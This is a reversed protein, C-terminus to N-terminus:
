DSFKKRLEDPLVEMEITEIETPLDLGIKFVCSAPDDILYLHNRDKDFYRPVIYGLGEEFGIFDFSKLVRGSKSILKANKYPPKGQYNYIVLSIDNNLQFSGIVPEEAKTLDTHKGNSRYIRSCFAFASSGSLPNYDCDCAGGGTFSDEFFDRTKLEKDLFVMYELGVDSDEFMWRTVLFFSNFEEHFGEYYWFSGRSGALLDAPIYEELEYKDWSVDSVINDLSDYLTINYSINPGSYRQATITDGSEKIILGKYEGNLSNSTMKFYYPAGSIEIATDLRFEIPSYLTYEIDELWVTDIGKHEDIESDSVEEKVKEQPTEKGSCSMLLLVFFVVAKVYKISSCLM